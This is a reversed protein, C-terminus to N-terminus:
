ALERKLSINSSINMSMRTSDKKLEAEEGLIQSIAEQKSGQRLVDM